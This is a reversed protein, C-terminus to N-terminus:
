ENKECVTIFPSTVSGLFFRGTKADHVAVTSCPLVKAEIDELVKTVEHVAKGEGDITRRIRFVTSACNVNIPDALAAVLGLIKPFGAVFIDGNTDITLNDIPMGVLIEDIKVLSGDPQLELVTVRNTTTQAVYYLGDKGKVIGNSFSGEPYATKCEGKANCYGVSGPGFLFAVERWLSHKDAGHDNTFLFGGDGTAEISNPTLIADAHFTKVHRLKSSGKALDFAEITSNAGVKKPDLQKGSEDVAPRNNIIWFRLGGSSVREIRLGLIDIDKGGSSGKYNGTIDLQHLGYLGDDGPKDINLASV